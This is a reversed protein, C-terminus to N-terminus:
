KKFVISYILCQLVRLAMKVKNIFLNERFIQDKYYLLFGNPNRKLQINFNATLGDPLYECLYLIENKLVVKEIDTIKNWIYLEPVFKENKFIPFNFKELLEKKFCYALDVNLKNKLETATMLEFENEGDNFDPGLMKGNLYGKRYCLGSFKINEDYIYSLDQYIKEVANNTIIDDSDVIFIFSGSSIKLGTNIASPKGNNNQYIYKIKFKAEESLQQILKKTGDTSGDDVVVWEFNECTQQNLSDFLRELTYDRNFTPTLISIM